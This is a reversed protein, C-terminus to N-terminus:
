VSSIDPPEILPMDVDTIHYEEGTLRTVGKLVAQATALPVPTRFLMGYIVSPAIDTIWALQSISVGHRERLDLLTPKRTVM